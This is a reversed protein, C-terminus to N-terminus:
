PRPVVSSLLSEKKNKHFKHINKEWYSYLLFTMIILIDTPVRGPGKKTRWLGNEIKLIDVIRTNGDLFPLIHYFIPMVNWGDGAMMDDM